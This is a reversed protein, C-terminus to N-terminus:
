AMDAPTASASLAFRGSVAGPAAGLAALSADTLETKALADLAAPDYGVVVLVWHAVQDAGRIKQETTQAIPPTEHKLLHAGIFGRRRVLTGILSRLSARLDDDRGSAPSLRVTLAQRAVAAGGSELVRSQCRVMHRHHPMMRTSWPSPANLSALYARSSLVEYSDLEYMVFIGDDGTASTWRSARRFGPIALREPFHEHSHWDEFEKRMEPAMNWWMALAATGLLAM